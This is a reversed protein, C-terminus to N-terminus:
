GASQRGYPGGAFAYPQGLEAIYNVQNSLGRAQIANLIPDVYSTKWQAETPVATFMNAFGKLPTIFLINADPIGRLQQYEQAIRLANEDEPNVVLLMNEGGGGARALPAGGLLALLAWLAVVRGRMLDTGVRM